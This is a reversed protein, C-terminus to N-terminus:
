SAVKARLMRLNDSTLPYNIDPNALCFVVDSLVEKRGDDYGVDERWEFCGAWEVIEQETIKGSLRLDIVEVIAAAPLVYHVADSEFGFPRLEMFIEERPRRRWALEELLKSRSNM